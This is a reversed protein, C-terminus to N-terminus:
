VNVSVLELPHTFELETVMLTLERGVTEAPEVDVVQAPTAVLMPEDETEPLVYAQVLEGKPKVELMEFGVTLGFPVVLNLTWAM